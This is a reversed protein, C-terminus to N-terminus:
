SEMDTAVSPSSPPSSTTTWRTPQFNSVDAQTGWVASEHLLWVSAAESQLRVALEAYVQNGGGCTWDSHLYGGPDAVDVLYGRSLLTADFEGSRMDPELAAYEGGRIKVEIGLEGLENQIM